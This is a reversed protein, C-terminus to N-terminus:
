PGECFKRTEQGFEQMIVLKDGIDFDRYLEQSERIRSVTYMHHFKYNNMFHLMNDSSLVVTNGFIDPEIPRGLKWNLACM